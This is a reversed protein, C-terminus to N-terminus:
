IVDFRLRRTTSHVLVRAKSVWTSSSFAGTNTAGLGRFQTARLAFPTRKEDQETANDVQIMESFPFGKGQACCSLASRAKLL